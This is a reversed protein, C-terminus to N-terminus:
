PSTTDAPRAPFRSSLPRRAHIPTPTSPALSQHSHLSPRPSLTTAPSSTESSAAVRLSAQPSSATRTSATHGTSPKWSPPHSHSTMPTSTPISPGTVSNVDVYTGLCSSDTIRVKACTDDEECDPRSTGEPYVVLKDTNYMESTFLDLNIQNEPSQSGGHYSLILAAPNSISYEPPIFVVYRRDGIFADHHSGPEQGDPLPSGCGASHTRAAVAAAFGSLGILLEVFM